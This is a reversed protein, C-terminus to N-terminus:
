FILHILILSLGCNKFLNSISQPKINNIINDLAQHSNKLEAIYELKQANIEKEIDIEAVKISKQEKIVKTIKKYQVEIVSKKNLKIHHTM